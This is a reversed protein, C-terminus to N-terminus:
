PYNDEVAASDPTVIDSLKLVVLKSPLIGPFATLLDKLAKKGQTFHVPFAGLSDHLAKTVADKDDHDEGKATFFEPIDQVDLDGELFEVGAIRDGKNITLLGKTLNVIFVKAKSDKFSYLGTLVSIREVETLLANTIFLGQSKRENKSRVHVSVDVLM